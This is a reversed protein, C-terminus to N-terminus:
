SYCPRAWGDLGHKSTLAGYARRRQWQLMALLLEPGADGAQPDPHGHHGSVPVITIVRGAALRQRARQARELSGCWCLVCDHTCVAHSFSRSTRKQVLAGNPLIVQLLDMM